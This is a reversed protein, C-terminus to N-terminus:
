LSASESEPHKFVTPFNRLAICFLPAVAGVSACSLAVPHRSESGRTLNADTRDHGAM